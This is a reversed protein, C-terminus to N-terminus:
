VMTTGGNPSVVQGTVFDSEMFYRVVYWMESVEGARQLPCQKTRTDMLEPDIKYADYYMDTKHAGPAIANVQINYKGLDLALAQTMGRVAFKSSAYAISGPAARLGVASCLNIIKGFHNSKMLDVFYRCMFFTGNVNVNITDCFLKTDIEDAPVNCYTGANNVMVVLDTGMNEEAWKRFEAVENENQISIKYTEIRVGYEKELRAKVEEAKAQQGSYTIVLDYGERALEEAIAAGLGRSAGTVIGYKKDSM